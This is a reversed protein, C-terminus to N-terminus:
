TSGKNHLPNNFIRRLQRTSMGTFRAVESPTWGNAHLGILVRNRQAWYFQENHDRWQTVIVGSVREKVCVKVFDHWLGEESADM